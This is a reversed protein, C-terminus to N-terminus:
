DVNIYRLYCAGTEDVFADDVNVRVEGGLAQATLATAFQRSGLSDDRIRLIVLSNVTDCAGAASFGNVLLYGFDPGGAVSDYARLVNITGLGTYQTAHADERMSCTGLVFLGLMMKVTWKMRKPLM